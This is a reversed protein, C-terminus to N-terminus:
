LLALTPAVAAIPVAGPLSTALSVPSEAAPGRWGHGVTRQRGANAYTNVVLSDTSLM